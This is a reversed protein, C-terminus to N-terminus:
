QRAPIGFMSNAGGEARDFMGRAWFLNQMPILKRVKHTDSATIKGRFAAGVVDLIDSAKGLSPGLFAGMTNVNMYRRAPQGTLASIGIRDSTLKEVAHDANMLVGLIGSNDVAEAAWTMPSANSIDIGAADSKLKYSLAGLALMVMMGNFAAMDRQQLGAVLTHQISAFAFSQFQGIVRGLDGKMWLPLDGAQPIVIIRKVDRNIFAHLAAKAENDKWAATGAWRVGGDIGGHAQAQAHIRDALNEGIGGEALYGREKAGISGGVMKEIDELARTITMVGAFQQMVANWPNMLTLFGFARGTQSLGREVATGSAYEDALSNLAMVRDGGIMDLGVGALKADARALHYSALGHIFPNFATRLSRTLGHVFVPKGIDSISSVTMMGLSSLFNMTKAAVVSRHLLGDPNDPLRYTGRIIDRMASIDRKDREAINQLRTQEAETKGAKRANAEDQIKQLRDAMDVSGFKKSLNIDSAMTRSYFHDIKEIDREVFDLVKTTPLSALMREALPGRKLKVFDGPMFLRGPSQGLINNITDHALSVLEQRSLTEPVAVTAPAEVGTRAELDHVRDLLAQQQGQFHDTLIDALENFKAKVAVRNWMRTLYSQDASGAEVLEKFGPVVNSAEDRLPDVLNARRYRAAEAVEPIAHQDGALAADSIATRFEDFSLKGRGGGVLRSLSAMTPSLPVEKGFFYRSYLSRNNEMVDHTQGLTSGIRAEVSGGESSPIGGAVNGELLAGGVGSRSTPAYNEELANGAILDRATNRTAELESTQTRAKPTLLKLAEQVYGSGRQVGAGRAAETAQAGAGVPAAINDPANMHDEVVGALRDFEPRPIGSSAAGLVGGLLVAPGIAFASDEATRTEMTGHLVGEQIGVAAGSALAMEGARVLRAARGVAIGGKIWGGVPILITPDLMGSGVGAIFGPVGGRAFIASRGNEANIERIVSASEAPSRVGVFNDLYDRGYVTGKIQPDEYPNYDPVAPYQEQNLYRFANATPTSKLMADFLDGYGSSPPTIEPQVPGAQPTLGGMAAVTDGHIGAPVPLPKPADVTVTPITDPESGLNTDSM